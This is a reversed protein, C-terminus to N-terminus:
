EKWHLKRPRRRAPPADPDPNRGPRTPLGQLARGLCHMQFPSAGILRGAASANGNTESMSRDFLFREVAERAERLSPFGLRTDIVLSDADVRVPVRELDSAVRDFVVRLWSMTGFIASDRVEDILRRSEVSSTGVLAEALYIRAELKQFDVGAVDVKALMERLLEVAGTSHSRARVRASLLEGDLQDSAASQSSALRTLEDATAAAEKLKRQETLAVTLMKLAQMESGADGESREWAVLNRLRTEAEEARGLALLSRAVNNAVPLMDRPIALDAAIGEARELLALGQDTSGLDCLVAGLVGATMGAYRLKEVSELLGLAAELSERGEEIRGTHMLTTGEYYKV